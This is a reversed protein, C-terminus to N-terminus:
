NSKYTTCSISITHMRTEELLNSKQNNVVREPIRLLPLRLSGMERGVVLFHQLQLLVDLMAQLLLHARVKLHQLPTPMHCSSHPLNQRQAANNSIHFARRRTCNHGRDLQV